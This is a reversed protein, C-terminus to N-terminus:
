SESAKQTAYSVYRHPKYMSGSNCGACLSQQSEEIGRVCHDDSGCVDCEGPRESCTVCEDDPPEPLEVLEVRLLSATYFIAQAHCINRALELADVSNTAQVVGIAQKGVFANYDDLM